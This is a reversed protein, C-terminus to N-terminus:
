PMINQPVPISFRVPLSLGLFYDPSDDTLGIGGVIDFLVGRGMVTSLGIQATALRQDSNEVNRGNLEVSDVYQQQLFFRLSTQPSVALITGVSLTYEDGPQINDDEFSHQYALTGVFALPDQRKVATLSGQLDNFGGNLPVGNDFKDGTNSDYTIRAVLDPRWGKERFVTKAIGVSVDGIANGTDGESFRGSAGLNITRQEYVVNYPVGLELQTDWPLGLRFALTSTMEDRKVNQDQAVLDGGLDVLAPVGNERRTYNFSPEFEAQGVTLLLAGGAVLTRELAREAAEADVDVTGPAQGPRQQATSAGPAAPEAPQQALLSRRSRAPPEPLTRMAAPMPGLPAFADPQPMAVPSAAARRELEGVRRLLDNIVEDRNELQRRSEQLQRQLNELDPDAAYAPLLAVPGAMTAWCVFGGGALLRAAIKMRIRASAM